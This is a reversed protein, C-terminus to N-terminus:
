HTAWGISQRLFTYALANSSARESSNKGTSHGGTDREFFWAEHGLDLLKAATKRTHGPHVRDDNRMGTLLIPPYIDDGNIAHYASIRQLFEWDKLDDPDGYEAIWLPGALLKTYRRMDALPHSCSLAGFLKPYHTLM